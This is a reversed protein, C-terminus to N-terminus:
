YDNKKYHIIHNKLPDFLIDNFSERARTIIQVDLEM